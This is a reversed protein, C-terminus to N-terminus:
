HPTADTLLRQVAPIVPVDAEAWDYDLLEEASAWALAAHEQPSPNGDLWKAAYVDLVITRAGSSSLGQGLLGGVKIRIGLEEQIERALADEPTESDEVKGGPFEWKGPLAMEPGRQAILCRGRHAIAAGVVQIRISASDNESAM